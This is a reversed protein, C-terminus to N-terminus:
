GIAQGYYAAAFNFVALSITIAANGKGLILMPLLYDNRIWIGNLALVTAQVPYYILSRALCPRRGRVEEQGSGRSKGPTQSSEM